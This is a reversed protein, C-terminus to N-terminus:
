NKRLAVASYLSMFYGSAAFRFALAPRDNYV